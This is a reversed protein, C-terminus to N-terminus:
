QRGLAERYLVRVALAQRLEPGIDEAFEERYTADTSLVVTFYMGTFAALFGAVRLLPETLVLSRGGVDLTAYTHVTDLTTWAGITEIPIALFGFLVFFGFMALTGAVIQIAQSFLAVLGVNFRQRGTPRDYPPPDTHGAGERDDRHDPLMAVVDPDALQEIEAWSGFTNLTRILTPVRTLLFVSGLAFFIGLTFWYVLGSLTGAMQWVEANIFLFTQFLLLLPLARAIVNLFVTVQSRAQQGAWGVLSLAGYSTIAWVAALVAVAGIVTEAVDGFQGFLAAPVAPVVVLLGLEVPGVTRPRQTLPRGRVLNSGIWVAALVAVVLLATLVNRLLSWNRVDLANLGLLLYAVLLLPIARSWITWASDNREVFHPLGRRVFWSEVSVLDSGNREGRGREPGHEPETAAVSMAVVTTGARPSRRDTFKEGLENGCIAVPRYDHSGIARM